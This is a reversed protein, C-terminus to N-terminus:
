AAAVGEIEQRWHDCIAKWPGDWFQRCDATERRAIPVDEFSGYLIPVIDLHHHYLGHSFLHENIPEIEDLADWFARAEEYMLHGTRRSEIINRRINTITQDVDFEKYSPGRAKEMFYSFDLGILFERFTPTGIARWVYSYGGYDSQVDIAGGDTWERITIDAWYFGTKHRLRYTVAPSTTIQYDHTM